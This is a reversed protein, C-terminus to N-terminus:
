QAVGCSLGYVFLCYTSLIGLHVWLPVMRRAQITGRRAAVISAAVIGLISPCVAILLVGRRAIPEAAGWVLLVTWGAMLSAALHMGYRSEPSARSSDGGFLASGIRPSLMPVLVLGDTVAAVLFAVKTLLTVTEPSISPVIAQGIVGLTSTVPRRPKERLTRNVAPNPSLETTVATVGASVKM